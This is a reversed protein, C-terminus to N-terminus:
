LQAITQVGQRFNLDQVLELLYAWAPRHAHTPAGSNLQLVTTIFYSLCLTLMQVDNTLIQITKLQLNLATEQNPSKKKNRVYMLGARTEPVCGGWLNALKSLKSNKKNQFCLFKMGGLFLAGLDMLFTINRVLYSLSVREKIRFVLTGLLLAFQKPLHTKFRLVTSYMRVRSSVM